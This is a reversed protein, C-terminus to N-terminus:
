SVPLCRCCCCCRHLCLAEGRRVKFGHQRLTELDITQKAKKAAPPAAKGGSGEGGSGGEKSDSDSDSDSGSLEALPDM